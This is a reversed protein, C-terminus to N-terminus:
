KPATKTLQMTWIRGKHDFYVTLNRAADHATGGSLKPPPTSNAAKTWREAATDLVWVDNPQRGRIGGCLIVRKLQDHWLLNPFGRGPPSPESTVKRWVKRQPAYLWTGVNDYSKFFVFVRSKPDYVLGGDAYTLPKSPITSGTEVKGTAPHYFRTKGGVYLRMFRSAHLDFAWGNRVNASRWNPMGEPLKNDKWKGTNPNYAWCNSSDMVWYRDNAPDYRLSYYYLSLPKSSQYKAGYDSVQLCTWAPRSLDLTWLDNLKHGGFLVVLKRKSDYTLGQEARVRGVPKKGRVKLKTWRALFGPAPRSRAELTALQRKLWDADLVGSVRVNDYAVQSSFAWFGVRGFPYTADKASFPVSGVRGSLQGNRYTFSVKGRRTSAYPSQQRAKGLPKWKGKVYREMYSSKGAQLGFLNYYNGQEDACVLLACDGQGGRLQFDGSISMASRFLCKLLVCRGTTNMQLQGREVKVDRGAVNGAAFSSLTWDALQAKDNFDYHLEILRTRPNYKVLKGKFLKRVRAVVGDPSADIAEQALQRLRAIEKVKGKGFDTAAHAKEFLQLAAILQKAAALDYKERVEIGTRWAKSAAAEVAGMRREDLLELYRPALLHKGAAALAKGASTFDKAAIGVLAAAIQGDADVPKFRPLLRELEGADLDAFKMVYGTTQWRGGIKFRREVFFGEDMVKTVKVRHVSKDKRTLVVDKDILAKLAAARHASHQKLAAAVKAAADLEAAVLELVKEQDKKREAALYEGAQQHQGELMLKDFGDLIPGLKERSEALRRKEALAAVNGKEKELRARLAAIKAALAAYKVAKLADLRTLGEQPQGAKSREEAAKLAVSIKTAARARLGKRQEEYRPTLVAAFRPPPQGWIAIAGDFDDVKELEDAKSRTAAVVADTARAWAAKVAKLSDDAKMGWVNGAAQTQVYEFKTRAEQYRDPNKQWFEEAYKFMEEFNKDKEPPDPPPGPLKVVPDEKKPPDPLERPTQQEGGTMAWIGISAVLLAGAAIGILAPLPLPLRRGEVAQEDRTTRGSPRRRGRVAGVPHTSATDRARRNQANRPMRGSLVSQIDAILDAPTQYRSERNKAMAKYIIRSTNHSVDPNVERPPPPEETLHKTMVVAATSGEFPTKGTVLRYLTAGLSYIDGRIDVDAEGRAQEPSVYHPTGVMVGTQTIHTEAGTQKALGLDTLKAIGDTTLMINDPKIDRHIIGRAGAYELARAIQLTLELAQKEPLAGQEKLLSALDRGDIYEMALYHYDGSKGVDLARVINEHDLKGALRAERVFRGVFDQNRALNRRLIKLAVLRDMSKQLALYVAGM